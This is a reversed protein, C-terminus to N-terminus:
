SVEYDPSKFFVERSDSTQKYSKDLIQLGVRLGDIHTNYNRILYELHFASPESDIISDHMLSVSSRCLFGNVSGKGKNMETTHSRNSFTMVTM